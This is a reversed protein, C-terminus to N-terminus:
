EPPSEVAHVLVRELHELARQADGVSLEETDVVFEHLLGDGEESVRYFVTWDHLSYSRGRRVESTALSAQVDDAEPVHTSAPPPSGGMITRLDNFVLTFDLFEGRRREEGRLTEALRFPDFLSHRSARLMETATAAAVTRLDESEVPVVVLCDQGFTGVAAEFAHIFRNGTVSKWNYTRDLGVGRLGLSAAALLLAGDSVALRSALIRAALASARSHLAVTQWRGERAVKVAPTSRGVMRQARELWFHQARAHRREWEPREEVAVVDFPQLPQARRRPPAPVGAAAELVEDLRAALEDALVSCGSGDLVAHSLALAVVRPAGDVVVIGVRLPLDHELDFRQRGLGDLLRRAAEPVAEHTASREIVVDVDGAASLEQVLHPRTCSSDDDGHCGEQEEPTMPVVRTRLAEYDRLLGRVVDLVDELEIREGAPGCPVRVSRLLTFWTAEDGWWLLPLLIARQGWTLPARGARVGEFPVRESGVALTTTGADPSTM